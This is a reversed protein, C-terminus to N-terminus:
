RHNGKMNGSVIPYSLYSYIMYVKLVVMNQTEGFFGVWFGFPGCVQAGWVFATTEPQVQTAEELQCESRMWFEVGWLFFPHFGKGRLARLQRLKPCRPTDQSQYRLHCEITQNTKEGKVLRVEAAGEEVAIMWREGTSLNTQVMNVQRWFSSFKPSSSVFHNPRSLNLTLKTKGIFGMFRNAEHFLHQWPAVDVEFHCGNM